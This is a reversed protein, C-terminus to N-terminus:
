ERPSRNRRRPAPVEELVHYQQRIREMIGGVIPNSYVDPIEMTASDVIGRVDHIIQLPYPPHRVWQQEVIVEEYPPINPIAAPPNVIPHSVSCFWRMNGRSHSWPENEPVMDGREQLSLVHLAFEMFAMAVEKSALPGIDTHPRLVTQVYGYQRLVREPLHCVRRDKGAM